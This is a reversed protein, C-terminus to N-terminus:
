IIARRVDALVILPDEKLTFYKKVISEAVIFPDKKGSEIEKALKDEGLARLLAVVVIPFVNKRFLEGSNKYRIVMRHLEEVLLYTTSTM